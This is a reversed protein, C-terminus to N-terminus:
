VGSKGEFQEFVPDLAEAIEAFSCGDDDDNKEALVGQPTNKNGGDLTTAIGAWEAVERPLYQTAGLYSAVRRTDGRAASPWWTPRNTDVVVWEALGSQECLVGLCCYEWEKTAFNWERLYSKGQVFEGSTLNAKWQTKIEDKM